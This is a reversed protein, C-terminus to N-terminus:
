LFAIRTSSSHGDNYGIDESNIYLHNHSADRVVTALYLDNHNRWREIEYYVSIISRRKDIQGSLIASKIISFAQYPTYIKKIGCKEAEALTMPHTYYLSNPGEREEKTNYISYLNTNFPLFSKMTSGSPFITRWIHKPTLSFDPIEWGRGLEYENVEEWFAAMNKKTVKLKANPSPVEFTSTKKFITSGIDGKKRFDALFKLLQNRETEPYETNAVLKLLDNKLNIKQM